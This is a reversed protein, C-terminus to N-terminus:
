AIHRRLGRARRILDDAKRLTMGPRLMLVARVRRAPLIEDVIAADAAARDVGLMWAAMQGFRPLMPDKVSANLLLASVFTTLTARPRGPKKPLVSNYMTQLAAFDQAELRTTIESLLGSVLGAHEHMVHGVDYMVLADLAVVAQSFNTPREGTRSFKAFSKVADHIQTQTAESTSLRLAPNRKTKNKAAVSGLSGRAHQIRSRM